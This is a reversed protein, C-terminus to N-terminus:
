NTFELKRHITTPYSFNWVPAACKLYKSFDKAEQETETYLTWSCDDCGGIYVRDPFVHVRAYAEDGVDVPQISNRDTKIWFSEILNPKKSWDYYDAHDVKIKNFCNIEKLFRKSPLEKEDCFEDFRKHADYRQSVGEYANKKVLDLGGLVLEGEIYDTLWDDMKKYTEEVPVRFVDYIYRFLNDFLFEDETPTLGLLTGKRLKLMNLLVPANLKRQKIYKEIDDPTDYLAPFDAFDNGIDVKSLDKHKKNM